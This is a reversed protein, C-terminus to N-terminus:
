SSPAARKDVVRVAKGESREIRGPGVLSIRCAIGLTSQVEYTLRKELVSLRSPNGFTENSAEVLVELEDMHAASRDVVIQYHPETEDVTLLVSEIQSPFVNVGRVIIMDDTRGVIRDMRVTTRGCRCTGRMLRTRDRTRYRILPMAEKTLCTFVLEGMEGDPLPDGTVPDIIEPIFHDEFVHM